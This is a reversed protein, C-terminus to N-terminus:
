HGRDPHCAASSRSSTHEITHQSGDMARLKYTHKVNNPTKKTGFIHVLFVYVIKITANEM